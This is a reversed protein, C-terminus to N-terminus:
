IAPVARGIYDAMIKAMDFPLSNDNAGMTWAAAFPNNTSDFDAERVVRQTEADVLTMHINMYSSGAMAGGWLRAQFGAIRMDSVKIRVLLAPKGYTENSNAPEVKKYKNLKLLSTILTVQCNTLAEEYDAKLPPTTELSYVFIESYPQALPAVPPAQTATEDQKGSQTTACGVLTVVVLSALIWGLAYGTKKRTM